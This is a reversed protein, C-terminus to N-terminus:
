HRARLAAGRAPAEGSTVDLVRPGVVYRVVQPAGCGAAGYTVEPIPRNYVPAGIQIILPRVCPALDPEAHTWQLPPEAYGTYAPAAQVNYVSGWGAAGYGLMNRRGHYGHRRHHDPRGFRANWHGHSRAHHGQWRGHPSPAHVGSRAHPRPAFAPPRPRHVPRAGNFTPAAVPGRAHSGAAPAAAAPAVAPIALAGAATAAAILYATWRSM